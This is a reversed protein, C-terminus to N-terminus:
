RNHLFYKQVNYHHIKEQKKKIKLSFNLTTEFLLICKKSDNNYFM